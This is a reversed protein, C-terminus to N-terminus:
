LDLYYYRDPGPPPLDPGRKWGCREYLRVAEVYLARTGLSIRRYGLSRAEDVARELM